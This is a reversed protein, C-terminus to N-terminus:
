EDMVQRRRETIEHKGKEENSRIHNGGAKSSRSPKLLCRGRLGVRIRRDEGKRKKKPHLKRPNLISSKKTSDNYRRNEEYKTPGDRGNPVNEYAREPRLYRL